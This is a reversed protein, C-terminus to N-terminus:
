LFECQFVPAHSGAIEWLPLTRAESRPNKIILPLLFDKEEDAMFVIRGLEGCNM